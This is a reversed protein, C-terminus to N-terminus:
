LHHAQQWVAVRSSVGPHTLDRLDDRGNIKGAFIEASKRQGESAEQQEESRQDKSANGM